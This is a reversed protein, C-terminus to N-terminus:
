FNSKNMNISESSMNSATKTVKSSSNIISPLKHELWGQMSHVDMGNLSIYFRQNNNVIKAQTALQQIQQSIKGVGKNLMQLEQKDLSNINNSSTSLKQPQPTISSLLGNKEKNLNVYVNQSTPKPSVFPKSQNSSHKEGGLQDIEKKRRVIDQIQQKQQEEKNSNKGQKQFGNEVKEFYDKLKPGINLIERNDRDKAKFVGNYFDPVIFIGEKKLQDIIVRNKPSTLEDKMRDANKQMDNLPVRSEGYHPINSYKPIYSLNTYNEQEYYYGTAKDKIDRLAKRRDDKKKESNNADAKDKSYGWGITVNDWSSLDNESSGEGKGLQSSKRGKNDYLVELATDRNPWWQQLIKEYAEQTSISLTAQADVFSTQNLNEVQRGMKVDTEITDHYWRQEMGARERASYTVDRQGEAFGEKSAFYAQREPSLYEIDPNRWAASIDENHLFKNSTEVIKRAKEGVGGDKNANQHANKVNEMLLAVFDDIDTTNQLQNLLEKNGDVLAQVMPNKLLDQKNNKVDFLKKVDLLNADAHEKDVGALNMLQRHNSVNKYEMGHAKAFNDDKQMESKVTPPDLKDIIQKLSINMDSFARNQDVLLQDNIKYADFQQQALGMGNQNSLAVFDPNKVKTLIAEINTEYEAFMSNIKPLSSNLFNNMGDSASKLSHNVANELSKYFLSQKNNIAANLNISANSVAKELRGIALVFNDSKNTNNSDKYIITTHSPQIQPVPPYQDTDSM